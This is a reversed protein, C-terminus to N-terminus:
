RGSSHNRGNNARAPPPEAHPQSQPSTRQPVSQQRPGSAIQPRSYSPAAHQQPATYSRSPAQPAVHSTSQHFAPSPQSHQQYAPGPQPRAVNNHQAPSSYSPRSAFQRSDRQAPNPMSRQAPGSSYSPRNAFQRSNNQTNNPMNRQAPTSSSPPRDAFQRSDRQTPNAMSRQAPTSSSPPRDAFQRSDRQTPNAMSRQTNFQQQHASNSPPRNASTQNTSSGGQAHTPSVQSHAFANDRQANGGHIAGNNNNSITSDTPHRGINNNPHAPSLTSTPRASNTARNANAAISTPRVGAATAAVVGRGSFVAPRATGAIAPRGNNVSAFQARNAGALHEHQIQVSTASVHRERNAVLEASTPAANIGSDGGNYSVNNINTTNNIVTSNYTNHVENINVNNVTTNYYFRDHDWRGGEYGFGGYGFGYDIGGYFGVHEGWYGGHWFYGEGGWGWFGPTWLYGIRPATVWTGPVWYYDEDDYDYAWYGPTWIYGDGPCMPQEYVPLPPPAFGVSIGFSAQAAAISATAPIVPLVLAFLLLHIFYKNKM